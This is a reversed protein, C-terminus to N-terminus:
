DFRRYLGDLRISWGLTRCRVSAQRRPQVAPGPPLSPPHNPGGGPGGAMVPPTASSGTVMGTAVLPDGRRDPDIRCTFPMRYTDDGSLAHAISASSPCM